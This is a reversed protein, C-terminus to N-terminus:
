RGLLVSLHVATALRAIIASIAFAGFVLAYTLAAGAYALEIRSPCRQRLARFADSRLNPRDLVDALAYYGDLEILPNLNWLCIAYNGIALSWAVARVNEDPVCVAILAALGAV